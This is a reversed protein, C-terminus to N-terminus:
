VVRTPPVNQTQHVYLLFLFPHELLDEILFYIFLYFLILYFYASPLNTGTPVNSNPPMTNPPMITPPMTNPPMTTPSFTAPPLSSPPNTFTPLLTTPPFTPCFPSTFNAFDLQSILVGGSWASGLANFVTDVTQFLDSCNLNSIGNSLGGIPIMESGGVAFNIYPYSYISTNLKASNGNVGAGIISGIVGGTTNTVNSLFEKGIYYVNIVEAQNSSGFFTIGGVVGGAKDNASINARSYSNKLALNSLSSNFTM